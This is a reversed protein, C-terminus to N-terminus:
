PEIEIICIGKPPLAMDINIDGKQYSALLKKGTEDFVSVKGSEPLGYDAAKLNFNLPFAKESISAFPIGLSGDDAKWASAYILPFVAQQETVTNGYRGAYISLKSINLKKEPYAIVPMRMYAGHLLYKLGHMRIKVLRHLYEMEAKRETELFSKYNAIMPQSGWVFSRAQEMLFQENFKEDLLQLANAPAFEKPWLDDYPPNLLSSYSGYSIAYQHYVAQFLPITEWSGVGAYREKSVQLTLFLDLHPLWSECNHEGALVPPENRKTQNRIQASLKGSNEVWYNGGGVPHYHQHSPDYCLHAYCTQDMYVGGVHYQNVVTDCLSAYKNKWFDTGM